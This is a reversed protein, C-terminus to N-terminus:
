CFHQELDQEQPALDQLRQQQQQQQQQQGTTCGVQPWSDFIGVQRGRAVAYFKGGSAAAGSRQTSGGAAAAPAAGSTSGTLYAQAEEILKFSKYQAGSFGDIATKCEEWTEFIGTRLGKRVAYWKKPAM